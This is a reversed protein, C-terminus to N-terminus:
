PQTIVGKFTQLPLQCLSIHYSQNPHGEQNIRHLYTQCTFHTGGPKVHPGKGFTLAILIQAQAIQQNRKHFGTGTTHTCNPHALTKRLDDFSDIGTTEEFKRHLANATKGPNTKWNFQGNDLFTNHIKDWRCPLHLTLTPCTKNLFLRVAIHDAYPAGGSILDMSSPDGLTHLLKLTAQEMKEYLIWNLHNADDKRGATGIIAVSPM